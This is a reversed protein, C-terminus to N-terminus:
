VLRIQRLTFGYEDKYRRWVSRPTAWELATKIRIRDSRTIERIRSKRIPTRPTRPSHLLVAIRQPRLPNLIRHLDM